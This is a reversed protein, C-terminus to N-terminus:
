PLRSERLERVCEAAWHQPEPDLPPLIPGSYDVAGRRYPGGDYMQNFAYQLDLSAEAEGERLPVAIVPLPKDLYAPFLQFSLRVGRRWARNVLVVYEPPPSFEYIRGNVTPGCWSRDGARLLDIEILSTRSALIEERKALYKERDEGARKNSPSLIEILTVVEHDARGDRIEIFNVEPRDYFFEVETYADLDTRPAAAVAVGGGADDWAPGRHVTVDPVIRRLTGETIIGVEERVGLQAYYPQPLARNLTKRIEAALADHMDPWVTPHELYPDMGPFPSPM